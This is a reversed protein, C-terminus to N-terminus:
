SLSYSNVTYDEHMYWVGWAEPLLKRVATTRMEAFIAGRHVARFHSLFRFFNMTRRCCYVWFDTCLFPLPGIVAGERCLCIRFCSTFMILLANLEDIGGGGGWGGGGGGGGM